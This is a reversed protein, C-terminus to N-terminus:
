IAQLGSQLGSGLGEVVVEPFAWSLNRNHNEAAPDLVVGVDRQTVGSVSCGKLQSGVQDSGSRVQM